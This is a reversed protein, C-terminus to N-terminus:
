AHGFISKYFSKVAKLYVEVDAKFYGKAKLARVFTDINLWFLPYQRALYYLWYDEVASKVSMYVAHGRAEGTATTRRQVALKMGLPNNQFRYIDSTFNGSEHAAQAVIMEATEPYFGQEILLLYLEAAHPSLIPHPSIIDTGMKITSSSITTKKRFKYILFAIGSLTVLILFDYLFNVETNSRRTGM